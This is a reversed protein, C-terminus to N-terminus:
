RRRVKRKQRIQLKKERKNEQRNAPSNNLSYEGDFTLLKYFLMLIIIGGQIHLLSLEGIIKFELSLKIFDGVAKFIFNIIDIM